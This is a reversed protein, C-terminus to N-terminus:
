KTCEILNMLIKTEASKLIKLRKSSLISLKCWFCYLFLLLFTSSMFALRLLTITSIRLLLLSSVMWFFLFIHISSPVSSFLLKGNAISAVFTWLSTWFEFLKSGWIFSSAILVIRFSSDEFAFGGISCKIAEPIRGINTSQKVHEFVGTRWSSAAQARVLMAEPAESCQYQCGIGRWFNACADGTFTLVFVLFPTSFCQM